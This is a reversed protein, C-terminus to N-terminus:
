SATRSEHQLTPYKKADFGNYGRNGSTAVNNTEKVPFLGRWGKVISQRIIKVALAPNGQSLQSLDKLANREWTSTSKIKAESRHKLFEAWTARVEPTDIAEPYETPPKVERVPKTAPPAVAEAVRGVPSDVVFLKRLNSAHHEARIYGCAKLNAIWRSVTPEAVDYLRSFYDNSAWCFGEQSCLATIEGYLLKEAPKLNPNYRVTAPIVAYYSKKPEETRM